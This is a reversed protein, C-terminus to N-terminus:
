RRKYDLGQNLACGAHDGLRIAPQSIYYLYSPIMLRMNNGIFNQCAKAARGCRFLLAIWKERTCALSQNRVEHGQGFPHSSAIQGHRGCQGSFTNEIRKKPPMLFELREKVAMTISSVLQPRRDRQSVKFNKM